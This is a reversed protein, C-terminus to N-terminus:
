SKSSLLICIVTLNQRVQRAIERTILQKLGDFYCWVAGRL